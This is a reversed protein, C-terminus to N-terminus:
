GSTEQLTWAQEADALAVGHDFAFLIATFAIFRTFLGIAPFNKM